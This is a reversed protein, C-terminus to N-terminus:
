DDPETKPFPSAQALIERDDGYEDDDDGNDPFLNRKSQWESEEENNDEPVYDPVDPSSFRSYKLGTDNEDAFGSSEEDEEELNRKANRRQTIWWPICKQRHLRSYWDIDACKDSCYVRRQCQSCLHPTIIEHLCGREMKEFFMETLFHKEFSKKVTYFNLHRFTLKVSM